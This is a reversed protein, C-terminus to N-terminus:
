PQCYGFIWSPQLIRPNPIQLVALSQVEQYLRSNELTIAVQSSFLSLLKVDSQEFSPKGPERTIQIVGKVESQWRVPM